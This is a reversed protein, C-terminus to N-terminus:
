LPNCAAGKDTSAVMLGQKLRAVISPGIQLHVKGVFYVKMCKSSSKSLLAQSPRLSVQGCSKAGAARTNTCSVVVGQLFALRQWVFAHCMCLEVCHAVWCLM